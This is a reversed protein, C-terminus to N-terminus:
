RRGCGVWSVQEQERLTMQTPGTAAVSHRGSRKSPGGAYSTRLDGARRHSVNLSLQGLVGEEDDSAANTHTYRADLADTEEDSDDSDRNSRLYRSRRPAGSEDPLGRRTSPPPSLALLATPPPQNSSTFLAGEKDPSPIRPLDPAPLTM